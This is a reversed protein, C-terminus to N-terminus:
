SSKLKKFKAAFEKAAPLDIEDKSLTLVEEGKLSFVIEDNKLDLQAERLPHELGIGKKALGWDLVKPLYRDVYSEVKELLYKTLGSHKEAERSM